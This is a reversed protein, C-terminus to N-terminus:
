GRGARGSERPKAARGRNHAKLKRQLDTLHTKVTSM